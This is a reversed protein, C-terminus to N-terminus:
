DSSIDLHINRPIPQLLLMQARLGNIDQVAVGVEKDPDTLLRRPQHANGGQFKGALEERHQDTRGVSHNM